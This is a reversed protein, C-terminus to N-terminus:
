KLEMRLPQSMARPHPRHSRSSASQVTPTLIAAGFPALELSFQRSNSRFKKGTLADTLGSGCYESPIAVVRRQNSRNLAVVASKGNLRRAFALTQEGDNAQILEPTGSQLERSNKRIQALKRYLALTPNSSTALDWRMGKRNMPDPGGNMGLEDGYYVCPAGVWTFQLVAALHHMERREGCQTLIRATDHSGLINMLNRSVQPAYRAYNSMLESWVTTPKGDGNTGVFKLTSFLFPYNMVSDWQDGRLWQSADGWFEGVIWTSPSDAKVRTRFKKWFVQSVDQGVDLRLGDVNFEKKWYSTTELLYKTAAPADVNLKPLSPFNYWAEYNPKDGVRVPFGKIWYWDLFNSTKGKERIDKFAFFDVSTHNFVTDLITKIGRKHMDATLAKFEENTGLRHDVKRYDTTEYRHNSPGEFIPTFYVAGIGLDQLYGLHKRVGAIDGGFWNYFEPKGDWATLNPPDNARDGNDFRDPFIQYLVSSEVWNPVLFRKFSAQDLSFGTATKTETLGATTLFKTTTGDKLEFKYSLPSKGDWAVAVSMRAYLEDSQVVKMVKSSGNSLLLRVQQIDNPRVRLSIQLQGLDFNRDPVATLHQIASATIKGDGIRAPSTYDAPLALFVSNTNGNGDDLKPAKPDPVWTEGNIVFKYQHRGADLKLRISFTSGDASRQMPNADKNWGNFTGAISVSQATAPAAFIFTYTDAYVVTM